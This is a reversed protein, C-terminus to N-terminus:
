TTLKFILQKTAERLQKPLKELVIERKELWDKRLYFYKLLPCSVGDRYHQDAQTDQHSYEFLQHMKIAPINFEFVEANLREVRLINFAFDLAAVELLLGSGPWVADEGLYCGWSCETESIDTFYLMGAPRLDQYFVFYQRQKDKQLEEFWRLQDSASIEATSIMNKRIRPKNRWFRVTELLEYNLLEIHMLPIKM